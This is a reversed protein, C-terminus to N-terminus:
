NKQVICRILLENRVGQSTIGGTSNKQKQIM